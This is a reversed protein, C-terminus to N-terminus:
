GYRQCKFVEKTKKYIFLVALYRGGDFQGPAMYVDEGKRDGKEVFRIRPKNHLVQEVEDITVNHEVELKNVIDRMWIIQKIKM